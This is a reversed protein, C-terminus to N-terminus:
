SRSVNRFMACIIGAAVAANLSEAGGPRAAPISFRRAIFKEAGESIGRAENGIVIMGKQPLTSRFVDEGTLATGFVPLSPFRKKIERIDIEMCHVRLFAGMSAQIVKPSYLDVCDPSCFVYPIGFWDAIRLITGMNGPDQIGDLYLCLDNEPELEDLVLEPIKAIILAKNPTTLNSIQKLDRESVAHVKEPPLASCDRNTEIWNALGYLADITVRSQGLMELAIKEGEVVFNNYKQRFKKQGLSKIFKVKNKSLDMAYM